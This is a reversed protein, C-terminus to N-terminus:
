SKNMEKVLREAVFKEVKNSKIGAIDPRAVFIIDYGIPLIAENKRYAERLIRKARNRAVANGIKKGATIGFRNYPLRNQLYYATIEKASVFKGRKYLKLFVRKDKIIQTYLMFGTGILM